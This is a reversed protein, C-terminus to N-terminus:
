ILGKELALTERLAEVFPRNSWGLEAEARSNDVAQRVPLPVPIQVRPSKGGAERWARALEWMTRDAGATNYAKGISITKELALAIAEAVDGGYVAPVRLLAPFVSVPLRLLAKFIPMFNPDFAGYIMGPRVTTLELDREKALRWAIRESLAKSLQYAGILGPGDSEARMPRDEALSAGRGGAYVAQSSVHVVRKVGAEAIAEFVNETGLVNTRRHEKWSLNGLSYLAANSVVADAGRFAAALRDRELLDAKRFEVGRAALEPVRAPNRVVGIVRAGRTLLVDVIYRGLFGTAGTVAVTKKALHM